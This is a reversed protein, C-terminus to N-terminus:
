KKNLDIKIKDTSNKESKKDKENLKTESSKIADKIGMELAEKETYGLNSFKVHGYKDFIIMYPVSGLWGSKRAFYYIFEMFNRGKFLPYNINHKKGFEKLAKEDMGKQVQLALIEFEKKYKNKVEVLNPIEKLCPPCHEGFMLVAVAKKDKLSPFTLGWKVAQIEYSNGNVDKLTFKPYEEQKSKKASSVNKDASKTSNTEKATITTSFILIISFISAVTKLLRM